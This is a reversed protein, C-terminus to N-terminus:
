HRFFIDGGKTKLNGEDREGERGKGVEEREDRFDKM